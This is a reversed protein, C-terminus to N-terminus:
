IDDSSVKLFVLGVGGHGQIDIWVELRLIINLFVTEMLGIIMHSTSYGRRSWTTRMGCCGGRIDMDCVLQVHM